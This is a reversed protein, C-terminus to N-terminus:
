PYRKKIITLSGQRTKNPEIIDLMFPDGKIANLIALLHGNAKGNLYTFHCIIYFSCIDWYEAFFAEYEDVGGCDFWVFDFDGYKDKLQKAKGQFVGEVFNVYKSNVISEMGPRKKLDGLSMDDIVILKPDYNYNQMYETRLNGDNFVRENNVLAELLFPTTYGAGIELIRNPRLMQVMSRLFPAVNETGLGPRYLEQYELPSPTKFPDKRHKV